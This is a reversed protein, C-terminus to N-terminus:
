NGKAKILREKISEFIIKLHDPILYKRDEIVKLEDLIEDVTVNLYNFNDISIHVGVNLNDNILGCIVKKEVSTLDVETIKM